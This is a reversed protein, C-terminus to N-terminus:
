AAMMDALQRELEAQESSVAQPAPAAAAAAPQQQRVGAPQTLPVAGIGALQLDLDEDELEALEAEFDHDDLGMPDGFGQALVEGIEQQDAMADAVEDMTDTVADVGGMERQVQSMAQQGLKMMGVTDKSAIASEVMAIQQTLSFQTQELQSVEKEYRRLATWVEVLRCVHAALGLAGSCRATSRARVAEKEESGDDGVAQGKEEHVGKCGRARGGNETRPAFSHGGTGTEPGARHRGRPLRRTPLTPPSATHATRRATSGRPSQYSAARVQTVFQIRKGMTDTHAKMKQLNEITSPQLPRHRSLGRTLRCGRRPAAAGPCCSQLPTPRLPACRPRSRKGESCSCPWFGGSGHPPQKTPTETRLLPPPDCWSARQESALPKLESRCCGQPRGAQLRAAAAVDRPGCLVPLLCAAPICGLLLLLSLLLAAAADSSDCCCCCATLCCDPPLGTDLLCANSTKPQSCAKLRRLIRVVATTHIGATNCLPISQDCKPRRVYRPRM